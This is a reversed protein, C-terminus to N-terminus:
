NNSRVKTKSGLLFIEVHHENATFSAVPLDLEIVIQKQEELVIPTNLQISDLKGFGYMSDSQSGCLAVPIPDQLRNGDLKIILEGNRLGAPFNSITSDYANVKKPDTETAHTAYGIVIRDVVANEGKNLKGQHLNTLGTAKNDREDLIPQIGSLDSITKRIHGFFNVFRLKGSRYDAATVPDVKGISQMYALLHEEARTLGGAMFGLVESMESKAVAPAALSLFVVATSQATQEVNGKKLGDALTISAGVFTLAAFSLFLIRLTKM